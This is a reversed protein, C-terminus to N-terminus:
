QSSREEEQMTNLLRHINGLEPDPRLYAQKSNGQNQQKQNRNNPKKQRNNPRGQNRNVNVPSRSVSGTKIRKIYDMVDRFFYPTIVIVAVLSISTAVESALTYIFITEFAAVAFTLATLNDYVRFYLDTGADFAFGLIMLATFLWAWKDNSKDDDFGLAIALYGCAIQLLPFFLAVYLSIDIDGKNTPFQQYGWMSTEIDRWLIRLSVYLLGIFVITAPIAWGSEALRHGAKSISGNKNQQNKNRNRAM